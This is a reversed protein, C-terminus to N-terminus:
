VLVCVCVSINLTHSERRLFCVKQIKGAEEGPSFVPAVRITGADAEVSLMVENSVLLFFM